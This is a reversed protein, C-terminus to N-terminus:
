NTKHAFLTPSITKLVILADFPKGPGFTHHDGFANVSSIVPRMRGLKPLDDYFVIGESTKIKRFLQSSIAKKDPLFTKKMIGTDARVFVDAKESFDTPPHAFSYNM